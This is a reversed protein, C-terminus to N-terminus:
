QGEVTEPAKRYWQEAEEVRGNQALLLSLNSMADTGAAQRWATEVVASQGATYATVGVAFGDEGGAGDLAAWGVAEPVPVEATLQDFLARWRPPWHAARARWPTGSVLVM